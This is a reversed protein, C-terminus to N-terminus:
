RRVLYVIGPCVSASNNIKEGSLCYRHKGLSLRQTIQRRVLYVIGTGKGQKESNNIKEGSLCYWDLGLRTRCDRNEM